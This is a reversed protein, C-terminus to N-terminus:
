PVVRNIEEQWAQSGLQWEEQVDHILLGPGGGNQQQEYWYYELTPFDKVIKQLPAGGNCYLTYKDWDIYKLLDVHLLANIAKHHLHTNLAQLVEDPLSGRLQSHRSIESSHARINVHEVRDWGINTRPSFNNPTIDVEVTQIYSPIRYRRRMQEMGRGGADHFLIRSWSHWYDSFIFINGNRSRNM